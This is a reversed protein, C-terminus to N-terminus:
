GKVAGSTMGGIIYKQLVAFLILMPMITLTLVAFVHQWERSYRGFFNYVALPITWKQSSGLFFLPIMFNNWIDIASIIINTLTVPKLIPMLVRFFLQLPNCGDIIAAEDIERPVGKVFSCFTMITFPLRIAIFLCIVAFYSGYINLFKLLSFTSAIQLTITLGFIFYYYGKKAVGDNRRSICIGAMAGFLVACFTAPVTILVSNKYGNWIKGTQIVEAYNTFLFEDPWSLDFRAAQYQPKVSGLLMMLVPVFYILALLVLIIVCLPNARKKEEM